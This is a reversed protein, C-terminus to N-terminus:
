VPNDGMSRKNMRVLMHGRLMSLSALRAWIEQLRVTLLGPPAKSPLRGGTGPTEVHTPSIIM